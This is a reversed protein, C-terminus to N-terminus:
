RGSKWATLADTRVRVRQRLRDTDDAEALMAMHDALEHRALEARLATDVLGSLTTGTSRAHELARAHTTDPLSIGIKVTM